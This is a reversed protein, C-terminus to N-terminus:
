FKGQSFDTVGNLNQLLHALFFERRSVKFFTSFNCMLKWLTNVESHHNEARKRVHKGTTPNFLRGGLIFLKNVLIFLQIVEKPVSLLYSDIKVKGM